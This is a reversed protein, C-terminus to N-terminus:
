RRLYKKGDIIVIGKYGEGVEQGLVNYIRGSWLSEPIAPLGDVGSAIGSGDIYSKESVFFLLVKSASLVASRYSYNYRKGAATTIVSNMEFVGDKGYAVEMDVLSGDMDTKFTDWVYDSECGTNSGTHNDWNDCRVGFFESYGTAGHTTSAGYLSWNHWNEAADSYNKFHFKAKGGRELTYDETSFNSWWGSSIDKVSSEPYYDPIIPMDEEKLTHRVYPGCELIYDENSIAIYISIDHGDKSPTFVGDKSLTDMDPNGTEADSVTFIVNVNDVEPADGSIVNDSDGIYEEVVKRYAEAVAGKSSAKYLWVPVGGKSVASFCIAPVDNYGDINQSIVVGNYVTSGLKLIVFSKGEQSYAWTGTYRGTVTGDAHLTVREPTSEALQNHNLRYPHMILQYDGSIEEATFLARSEIDSQRTQKGTFRFPSAIPWGNENIFLQRVRVKFDLTGNNFKTHYVVFADGDKDVIASNHGEACEGVKMNGWGNMSGLLKLGKNTGANPGYNMTYQTYRANLGGADVYKGDPTESRFVRMEYGGDPALGGYTVFLYYWDGIKQIYPGEGSVYSGGAILKGFYPDSLYGTYSAGNPAKGSYTTEEYTYAYDRLGTEKDLRLIFIGGSWSGYAMWLEGSDDFFVCPDICNPWLNGWASTKYRDPLESQEGLVMELDTDKYSVSKGSYSQGNFGGFVVPAQYTFPGAPSDSTLMVIVSAWHDGNLSLYMCWKKMNPNYVVDPAWQNGSIWGAETTPKRDGVTIGAYTACYAGADFSRLTETTTIGDRKVTVQHEPSAKFQTAYSTSYVGTNGLGQINILDSTRGFGIHSGMIYYTDDAQSYYISPDHIGTEAYTTPLSMRFAESTTVSTQANAASAILLSFSLVHGTFTLRM